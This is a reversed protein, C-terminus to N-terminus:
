LRLASARLERKSEIRRRRSSGSGDDRDVLFDQVGSRRM